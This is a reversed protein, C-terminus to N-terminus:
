KKVVIKVTKSLAKYYKNGGYKVVAKFTGKKTLKTIKFMAKGKSNTKANYTKGKVKLTVKTNKMVKGKNTKLTVTYKKTKTKIKFTKKTATLKPTAKTVVIKATTSSKTYKDKGAFNITATYTKPVLSLALSAQGKNNTTRTYTKGNLKISIRQGALVNGNKDKLTVVLYKGGNYVMNVNSATLKTGVTTPVVTTNDETTNGGTANTNNGSTTNGSTTENTINGTTNNENSQTFNFSATANSASYNANGAFSAKITVEGTLNPITIKGESDTVDSVSNGDGIVYSVEVGSVVNSSNDKVTLSIIVVGFENSFISVSTNMPVNVTGNTINSSNTGNTNNELTNNDESTTKFTCNLSDFYVTGDSAFFNLKLPKNISSTDYEFYTWNTDENFIRNFITESGPGMEGIDVHFNAHHTTAGTSVKYFFGIKVINSWDVMQSISAFSTLVVCSGDYGDDNVTVNGDGFSMITWGSLDEFGVVGTENSENQSSEEISHEEDISNQNLYKDEISDTVDTIENSYNEQLELENNLNADQAEYIPITESSVENELNLEASENLGIDAASVSSIM